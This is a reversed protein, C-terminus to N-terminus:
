SKTESVRSKKARKKKPQRTPGANVKAGAITFDVRRKDFDVRTVFVQVRMGEKYTKDGAKLTQRRADYRVFRDSMASAHVLGQIQLQVLEVFMGFNMIRVVVADYIEPKKMQLQQQLFRYKKIEVLTKEADEATQETKSAHSGIAALEGHRYPNVKRALAAALIRHVVLDPYRRIPSTFHTYYKKALGYHGLASPSYTARKMSKLIALKVDYEFPHGHVSKLFAALNKRKTLDGPHFGMEELQVKLVEIKEKSPPEHVRRLIDFGRSSLERDVAENAAVMCEEILQHSIDNQCQRIDTIMGNSDIVVEYEPIDLDLAYRAFRCKRLQQALEHIDRLLAIAEMSIGSATCANQSGGQLVALAQEYTLRLSSRIISRDFESGQPIGKEDFTILVSFALRDENPRLSCLGNSLQEPLMPLVKDPLYVSNGRRQAEIDMSSGPRVFHSVDAIHVGLVRRGHRDIELSIADDFDRSTAPDITLIFRDRFDRRKGPNKLRGPSAEAEQIAEPLFTESLGYHRIIAYTDLSPESEPGIVEIIEAEPSVHRHEWEVFQIVVRDNVNAGKTDPVYFDKTYSPDVPVVYYFNRTARLTGSIARQSRELVRIVEGTRRESSECAVNPASLRVVVRDRPLATSLNERPIFIDQSGDLPTVFGNGSRLIDIQGTVLDASEGLSYHDQRIRVIDGNLVMSDLLLRLHKREGGRVALRKAIQTQTLPEDEATQFLCLVKDRFQETFLKIKKM